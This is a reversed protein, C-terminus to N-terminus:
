IFPVRCCNSKKAQIIESLINKLSMRTMAWILEGGTLASCDGVSLGGRSGWVWGLEPHPGMLTQNKGIAAPSSFEKGGRLVFLCPVCSDLHVKEVLLFFSLASSLAPLQGKRVSPPTLAASVTVPGMERRLAQLTRGLSKPGKLGLATKWTERLPKTIGQGLNRTGQRICWFEPSSWNCHM